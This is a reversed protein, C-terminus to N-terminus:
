DSRKSHRLLIQEQIQLNSLKKKGGPTKMFVEGKSTSYLWSTKHPFVDIEIVYTDPQVKGSSDATKNFKISYLDPSVFPDAQSLVESLRRQISDIDEYTLHVGTIIRDNSIGWFIKGTERSNSNLYATIYIEANAIISDCARNGKIEKLEIYASEGFPFLDGLKYFIPVISNVPPNMEAFPAHHNFLLQAGYNYSVPSFQQQNSPPLRLIRFEQLNLADEPISNETLIFQIDKVRSLVDITMSFLESDMGYLLGDSIFVSKEPMQALLCIMELYRYESYSMLIDTENKSLCTNLITHHDIGLAQLFQQAKQIDDKTHSSCRLRRSHPTFFFLQNPNLKAAKKISSFGNSLINSCQNTHRQILHIKENDSHITLRTYGECTTTYHYQLVEEDFFMAYIAATLHTKGYGNHGLVINIKNSFQMKLHEIPGFNQLEIEKIYM